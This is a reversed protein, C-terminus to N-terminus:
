ASPANTAGDPPVPAQPKHKRAHTMEKWKSYQEPTLVSELQAMTDERIEKMKARKDDPSLSSDERLERIKQHESMLLPEIQTRQSDSLNLVQAMREIGPNHIKGHPGAQPFSNTSATDPANTSDEALASSCTILATAAIAAFVFMKNSKM